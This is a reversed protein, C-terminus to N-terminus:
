NIAAPMKNSVTFTRPESRGQTNQDQSIVPVGQSDLTQITWVFQHLKDDKFPLQPRWIYQTMRRIDTLLIPQNSRLAQMPTQADLVEYVQLRYTAAEQSIPVLSSWRFIIATQAINADLSDKDNPFLLFPLQYNVQTFTGPPVTFLTVGDVGLISVFIQYTGASLKGSTALSSAGNTFRMNELQLVREINIFNNPGTNVTFIQATSNNSVALVTGNIERLQTALKIRFTPVTTGTYNVRLQRTAAPKWDSLCSPLRGSLILTTGNFNQAPLANGILFVSLIVLQYKKLYQKM